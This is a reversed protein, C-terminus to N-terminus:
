TARVDTGSEGEREEKTEREGEGEWGRNVGLFSTWEARRSGLVACRWLVQCQHQGCIGGGREEGWVQGNDFTHM